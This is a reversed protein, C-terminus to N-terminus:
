THLLSLYHRSFATKPQGPQRDHSLVERTVHRVVAKRDGHVIARGRLGILEVLVEPMLTRDCGRLRDLLEHRGDRAWARDHDHDLGTLGDSKVSVRRRSCSRAALPMRKRPTPTEPPSSPASLPGLMM